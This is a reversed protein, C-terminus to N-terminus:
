PLLHHGGFAFVRNANDIILGVGGKNGPGIDGIAAGDGVAMDREAIFRGSPVTSSVEVTSRQARLTGSVAVNGLFLVTSASAFNGPGSLNITPDGDVLMWVDSGVGTMSITHGGDFNSAKSSRYVMIGLGSDAGSINGSAILKSFRIQDTRFDKAM